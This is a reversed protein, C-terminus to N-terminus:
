RVFVSALVLVVVAPSLWAAVEWWRLDDNLGPSSSMPQQASM